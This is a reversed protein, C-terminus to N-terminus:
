LLDMLHVVETLVEQLVPLALLVVDVNVEIIGGFPILVTVIVLHVVLHFADIVRLESYLVVVAVEDVLVVVVLAAYPYM